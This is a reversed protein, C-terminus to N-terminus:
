CMIQVSWRQRQSASFSPSPTRRHRQM